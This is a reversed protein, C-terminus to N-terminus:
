SVTQVITVEYTNAYTNPPITLTLVGNYTYSGGGAGVLAQAITIAEAPNVSGGAGASVDTLDGSTLATLSDTTWVLPGGAALDGLDIVPNTDATGDGDTDVQTQGYMDGSGPQSNDTLGTVTWGLLSGRDDTVTTAIPAATNDTTASTVSTTALSNTADASITLTGATLEASVTTSGSDAAVASAAGFATVAAAIVGATVLKRARM